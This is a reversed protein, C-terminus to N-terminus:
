YRRLVWKKADIKMGVSSLSVVMFRKELKAYEGPYDRKLAAHTEVPLDTVELRGITNNPGVHVRLRGANIMKGPAVVFSAYSHKFDVGLFDVKKSIEAYKNGEWFCKLKTIHYRGPKFRYVDPNSPSAGTVWSKSNITKVTKYTGDPKKIGVLMLM